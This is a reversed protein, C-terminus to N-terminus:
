ACSGWRARALRAALRSGRRWPGAWRARREEISRPCAAPRIFGARWTYFGLKELDSKSRLVRNRKVLGSVQKRMGQVFVRSELFLRTKVAYAMLLHFGIDQHEQPYIYINLNRQARQTEATFHNERLSAAVCPSSSIFRVWSEGPECDGPQTPTYPEVPIRQTAPGGM